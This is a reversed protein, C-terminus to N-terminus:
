KYTANVVLGTTPDGSGTATTTCAYKIATAFAIGAAGFTKDMAGNAPVIYSQNPVTTGITPASADFLQFYADSGNPNQVELTYLTGASAKVTQATNDGDSDFLMSAGGTTAVGFTATVPIAEGASNGQVTLPSDYNASQM